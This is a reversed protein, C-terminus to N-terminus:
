TLYPDDLEKARRKIFGLVCHGSNVVKDIQRKFDLKSDLIVGLDRIHNVRKLAVGNITYTADVLENRRLFSIVACKSVNLTKAGTQSPM